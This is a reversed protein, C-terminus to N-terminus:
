SLNVASEGQRSGRTAIGNILYGTMYPLNGALVVGRDPLGLQLPIISSRGVPENSGGALLALRLFNRGNLPLGRVQAAGVVTGAVNSESELLLQDEASVTIVSRIEGPRLTVELSATQGVDLHVRTFEFTEFGQKRVRLKYSVAPINPFVFMGADNSVTERTFDRDTDVLEIQAGPVVGRSSDSVVGHISGTGLSAQALLSLAGILTLSGAKALPNFSRM